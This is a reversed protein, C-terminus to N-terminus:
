EQRRAGATLAGIAHIWVSPCPREDQAHQFHAEPVDFPRALPPGTRGICRSQRGGGGWGGTMGLSRSPDLVQGNVDRKSNRKGRGWLRLDRVWGGRGDNRGGLRFGTSLPREGQAGDFPRAPAARCRWDTATIGVGLRPWEGRDDVIVLGRSSDPGPDQGRERQHSLALTLTIGGLHSM